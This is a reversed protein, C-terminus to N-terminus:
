LSTENLEGWAGVKIRWNRINDKDWIQRRRDITQQLDDARRETPKGDRNETCVVSAPLGREREGKINSVQKLKKNVM